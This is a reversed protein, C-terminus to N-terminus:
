INEALIVEGTSYKPNGQEIAQLNKYLAYGELKWLEDEAAKTANSTAVDIGILPNFRAPDVCGSFGTALFFQGDLYAHVFTSTTDGPQQVTVYQVRKMMKQIHEYTVRPADIDQDQIRQELQEADQEKWLEVWQGDKVINETCMSSYTELDTVRYSLVPDFITIFTLDGDVGFAKAGVLAAVEAANGQPNGPHNLSLQIANLKKVVESM